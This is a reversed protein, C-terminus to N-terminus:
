VECDCDVSPVGCEKCEGSKVKCEVSQVRFKASWVKCGM